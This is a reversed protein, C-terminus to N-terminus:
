KNWPAVATRASHNTILAKPAYPLCGHLLEDADDADQQPNDANYSNDVDHSRDEGTSFTEGAQGSDNTRQDEVREAHDQAAGAVNAAGGFGGGRLFAGGGRLRPLFEGYPPNGVRTRRM